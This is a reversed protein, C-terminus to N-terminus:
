NRFVSPGKCRLCAGPSAPPWCCCLEISQDACTHRFPGSSEPLHEFMPVLRWARRSVLRQVPTATQVWLRLFSVKSAIKCTRWGVPVMAFPCENKRRKGQNSNAVACAQLLVVLCKPILINTPSKSRSLPSRNEAIQVGKSFPPM